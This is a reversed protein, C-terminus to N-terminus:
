NVKTWTGKKFFKPYDKEETVTSFGPPNQYYQPSGADDIVVGSKLEVSPAIIPGSIHEGKFCIFGTSYIPGNVILNPTGLIEDNEALTTDCAILAPYYINTGPVKQANITVHGTFKIGKTAILTGDLYTGNGADVHGNVYHIGSPLPSNFHQDGTYIYDAISYYYFMDVTPLEEFQTADHASMSTLTFNSTDLNQGFTIIHNFPHDEFYKWQITTSKEGSTGISTLIMLNTDVEVTAINNSFAALGDAAHNMRWLAINLGSEAYYESQVKQIDSRSLMIEQSALSLLTTGIISVFLFFVMVMGLVSGNESTIFNRLEKRIM